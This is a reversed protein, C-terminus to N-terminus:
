NVALKSAKLSAQFCNRSRHYSFSLVNHYREEAKAPETVQVGALGLGPEAWPRRSSYNLAHKLELTLSLFFFHLPLSLSSKISAVQIM